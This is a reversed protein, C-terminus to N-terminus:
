LILRCLDPQESSWRSRDDVQTYRHHLLEHIHDFDQRSQHHRGRGLTLSRDTAARPSRLTTHASRAAHGSCAAVHLRAPDDYTFGIKRQWSSVNTQHIAVVLGIIRRDLYAQSLNYDTFTERIPTVADAAYERVAYPLGWQAYIGYDITTRRRNGSADYVNTETVRPNVEYSVATNDQTWATTTWKKKVGGSWVESLTTLGKQWGTGYYEKYITGDPATM